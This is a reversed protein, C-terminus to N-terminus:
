DDSDDLQNNGPPQPAPAPPVTRPPRPPGLNGKNMASMMVGFLAIYGICFLFILSQWITGIIGCVYGAQTTGKGEPDMAGQRMKRLDASGMVWAAIGFFLGVLGIVLSLIGFVLVLTGRHPECDRRVRPRRAGAIEEEEDAFEEGCRPCFNTPKHFLKGCTPCEYRAPTKPKSLAKSEGPAGTQPPRDLADATKPQSEPQGDAPTGVGDAAGAAQFEAACSPCRVAKGVLDDMVRLKRQCSPCQLILAM